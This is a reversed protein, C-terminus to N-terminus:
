DVELAFGLGLGPSLPRGLFRTQDWCTYSEAAGKAHPVCRTPALTYWRDERPEYCLTARSEEVSKSKGGIIVIVDVLRDRARPITRPSTLSSRQQSTAMNYKMAEMLMEKAVPSRQVLEEREVRDVLLNTTLLPLRVHRLLKAFHVGREPRNHETWRVLGDFVQAFHTCLFLHPLLPTM